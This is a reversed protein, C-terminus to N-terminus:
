LDFPFFGGAPIVKETTFFRHRGFLHHWATQDIVNQEEAANTQQTEDHQFETM